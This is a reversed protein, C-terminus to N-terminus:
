IIQVPSTLIGASKNDPRWLLYFGRALLTPHLLRTGKRMLTRSFIRLIGTDGRHCKSLPIDKCCLGKFRNEHRRPTSVATEQLLSEIDCGREGARERHLDHWCGCPFISFKLLPNNSISICIEPYLM